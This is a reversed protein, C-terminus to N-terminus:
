QCKKNKAWVFLSDFRRYFQERIDVFEIAQIKYVNNATTYEIRGKTGGGKNVGESFSFTNVGVQSSTLNSSQALRAEHISMNTTGLSGIDTNFEVAKKDVEQKTIM